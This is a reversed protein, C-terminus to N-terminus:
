NSEKESHQESPTNTGNWFPFIAVVISLASLEAIFGVDLFHCLQMCGFTVLGCCFARAGNDPLWNRRLLFRIMMSLLLILAGAVLLVGVFFETPFPTGSLGGVPRNVVLGGVLGSLAWALLYGLIARLLRKQEWSTM